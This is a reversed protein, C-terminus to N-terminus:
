RGNKGLPRIYDAQFVHLYNNRNSTTNQRCLPRAPVWGTTYFEQRAEMGDEQSNQSFSLSTNLSHGKKDIARQWGLVVDKNIRYQENEALRYGFSDQLNQGNLFDYNNLDDERERHWNIGGSLSFTNNDDPSYDLNA